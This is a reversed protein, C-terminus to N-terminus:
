RGFGEQVEGPAWAVFQLEFDVMEREHRLERWNLGNLPVRAMRESLRHKAALLARRREEHVEDINWRVM